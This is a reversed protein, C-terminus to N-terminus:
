AREGAKRSRYGVVCGAALLALMSAAPEPVASGTDGVKIGAGTDEYYLRTFTYGHGVTLNFSPDIVMEGWGYFTNAGSTFKFGFFGTAGMAWGQESADTAIGSSSTISIALQAPPFFMHSVMGTGVEFGSSLRAFGDGSRSLTAVFRGGNVEAVWASGIMNKLSFDVTGDGDVDLSNFGPSQPPQIPASTSAIIAAESASGACVALSAVGGAVALKQVLSKNVSM